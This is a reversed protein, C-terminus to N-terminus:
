KINFVKYENIIIKEGLKKEMEKLYDAVTLEENYFDASQKTLVDEDFHKSLKGSVIKTLMEEGKAKLKDDLSQIIDTKVKELEDKPICESTIYKPKKCFAHIALNEAIDNLLAKNKAKSEIIIYCASPGTNDNLNKHVYLGVLENSKLPRYYMDSIQIKEQIKATILKQIELLTQDELKISSLKDDTFKQYGEEFTNLPQISFLDSVKDVFSLFDDNRSVFDTESNVQIVQIHRDTVKINFVGERADNNAKKEAFILNKQKLYDLAGEISETTQLAEKCKMLPAGTLERLNKIRINLDSFFHRSTRLLFRARM